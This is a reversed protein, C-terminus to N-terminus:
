TADRTRRGIPTWLLTDGRRRDVPRRPLTSEDGYHIADHTRKTVTILYEPNLIWELDAHAIQEITVPNMHHIYPRLYIDHGPVALDCCEDRAIVEHRLKRWEPSHYFRQNLWRDHSFTPESVTGYLQLYKFRDTFKDFKIMEAYTRIVMTTM